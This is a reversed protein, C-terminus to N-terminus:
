LALVLAIRHHSTRHPISYPTALTGRPRERYVAVICAHPFCYGPRRRLPPFSLCCMCPGAPVVGPSIAARESESQARIHQRGQIVPTNSGSWDETAQSAPQGAFCSLVPTFLAAHASSSPSMARPIWTTRRGSATPGMQVCLAPLKSSIGPAMFRAFRVVFRRLM